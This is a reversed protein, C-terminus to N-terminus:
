SVRLLLFFLENMNEGSRNATRITLSLRALFLCPQLRCWAEPLGGCGFRRSSEFTKKSFYNAVAVAFHQYYIAYKTNLHWKILGQQIPLSSPPCHLCRYAISTLNINGGLQNEFGSALQLGELTQGTPLLTIIETLRSIDHDNNFKVDGSALSNPRSYPFSFCGLNRYRGFQEEM